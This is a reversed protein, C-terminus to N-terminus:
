FEDKWARIAAFTAISDAPKSGSFREAANVIMPNNCRLFPNSALETAITTPLTILGTARQQEVLSKRLGVLVSGPECADAFQLNAQTYEHTCYVETEPGLAVLKQLSAFMQAPTGEFIRGCGAAFLTDGSFVRPPAGTEASAPTAYAVHDLTHGPVELVDFHQGLLEFSDGESVAKTIGTIAPNNPGIVECAYKESLQAIGGTHDPHHHTILLAQLTLGNTELYDIVPKADGPDVVCASGKEDSLAWIYNDQFAPIATISQIM